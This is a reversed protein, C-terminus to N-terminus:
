MLDLGPQLVTREGFGLTRKGSCDLGVPNDETIHTLREEARVFTKIIYILLLKVAEHSTLHM